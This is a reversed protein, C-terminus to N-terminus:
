ERLMSTGALFGPVQLFLISILPTNIGTFGEGNCLTVGFCLFFVVITITSYNKCEDEILQNTISWTNACVWTLINEEQRLHFNTSGTFVWFRCCCISFVLCGKQWFIRHLINGRWGKIFNQQVWHFPPAKSFLFTKVIHSSEIKLCTRIFDTNEKKGSDMTFNEVALEM